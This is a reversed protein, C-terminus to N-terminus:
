AVKTNDVAVTVPADFRLRNAAQSKFNYIKELVYIYDKVRTQDRLKASQFQLKKIMRKPDYGGVTRVIKNIALVFNARRFGEYYAAFEYVHRAIKEAGLLDRVKFKGNRFDKTLTGGGAAALGMLLAMSEAHGFNYKQKFHKYVEYQKFGMSVYSNMFQNLGWNSTNQNYTHVEPLGYDRKIAYYIPLGLEECVIFRHQGDIIQKKANVIIVTLLYGKDEISKKIANKHAKNIPRNGELFSFQTYNKTVFIQRSKDKM